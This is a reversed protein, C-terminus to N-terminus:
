VRMHHLSNTEFWVDEENPVFHEELQAIVAYRWVAFATIWTPDHPQPSARHIEVVSYVPQLRERACGPKVEHKM